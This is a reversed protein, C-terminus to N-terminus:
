ADLDRTVNFSLSSDPDLGEEEKKSLMEIFEKETQASLMREPAGKGKEEENKKKGKFNIMVEANSSMISSDIGSSDNNYM